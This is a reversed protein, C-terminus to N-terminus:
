SLGRVEYAAVPRDTDKLEFEGLLATEVVGDVEAVVRQSILTQGSSAHSALRAALNAVPGVVGYDYRGEFGIRGLTAYGAAIGIGLGIDSGRHRWTEALDGFGAQISLAMRIAELEHHEVPEPDNFFV